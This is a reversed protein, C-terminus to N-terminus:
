KMMLHNRMALLLTSPPIEYTYRRKRLWLALIANTPSSHLNTLPQPLWDKMTPTPHLATLTGNRELIRRVRRRRTIRRRKKRGMAKKNRIMIM